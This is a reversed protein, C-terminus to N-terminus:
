FTYGAKALASGIAADALCLKYTDPNKVSKPFRSRAVKILDRALELAELLDPVAAIARANAEAEGASPHVQTTTQGDRHFTALHKGAGSLTSSNNLRADQKWPGPTINPKKM